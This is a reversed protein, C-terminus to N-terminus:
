LLGWVIANIFFTAGVLLIVTMLLSTGENM